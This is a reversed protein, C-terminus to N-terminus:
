TSASFHPASRSSVSHPDHIVDEEYDDARVVPKHESGRTRKSDAVSYFPSEEQAAITTQRMLRRTTRTRTRRTAVNPRRTTTALDRQDADDEEEYEIYEYVDEAAPAAAKNRNNRNGNSGSSSGSSSGHNHHHSNSNSNANYNGGHYGNNHNNAHGGNNVPNMSHHPSMPMLQYPPSNMRIGPSMPPSQQQIRPGAAPPMSNMNAAFNHHNTYTNMNGYHQQGQQQGNNGYYPNNFGNDYAQFPTQQQNNVFPVSAMPAPATTTTTTTTTPAPTTTTSTKALSAFEFISIARQTGVEIRSGQDYTSASPLLKGGQTWLKQGGKRLRQNIKYCDINGLTVKERICQRSSDTILNTFSGSQVKLCNKVTQSVNEDDCMLVGQGTCQKYLYIAALSMGSELCNIIDIKTEMPMCRSDPECLLMFALYGQYQPKATTTSLRSAIPWRTPKASWCEKVCVSALMVLAALLKHESRM